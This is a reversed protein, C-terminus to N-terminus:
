FCTRIAGTVGYDENITANLMPCLIPDLDLVTSM